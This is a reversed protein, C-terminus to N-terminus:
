LAKFAKPVNMIFFTRDIKSFAWIKKIFKLLKNFVFRKLGHLFTLGLYKKQQHDKLFMCIHFKVEVKLRNGYLSTKNKPVGTCLKMINQLWKECNVGVVRLVNLHSRFVAISYVLFKFSIYLWCYKYFIIFNQIKKEIKKAVEPWIPWKRDFRPGYELLGYEASLIM